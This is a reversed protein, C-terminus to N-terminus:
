ARKRGMIRTTILGTLLATLCFGYAGVSGTMLAPLIRGDGALGISLAMATGCLFARLCRKWTATPAPRASRRLWGPLAGLFAGVTVAGAYALPRRDLRFPALSDAAGMLVLSAAIVTALWFGRWLPHQRPM